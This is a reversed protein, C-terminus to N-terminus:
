QWAPQSLIPQRDPKLKHPSRVAVNFEKTRRQQQFLSEAKVTAHRQLNLPSTEFSPSIKITKVIASPISRLWTSLRMLVPIVTAATNAAKANKSRIASTARRSLRMASSTSTACPSQEFGVISVWNPPSGAWRRNAARVYRLRRGIEGLTAREADSLRLRRQLQAKLIRNEAALYENRLLLEQDGAKTIYALIRAWEMLERGGGASGAIPARSGWLITASLIPSSAVRCHIVERGEQLKCIKVMTHQPSLQFPPENWLFGLRSAASFILSPGRSRSEPAPRLGSWAATTFLWLPSRQLWLELFYRSCTHTRSVFSLLGMSSADNFIWIDGFGPAYPEEPILRDPAQHSPPRRGAHLPRSDSASKKASSCSGTAEIGLSFCLHRFGHPSLVSAFCQPPGIRLLSSPETIPSSCLSRTLDNCEQPLQRCSSGHTCCVSRETVFPTTV